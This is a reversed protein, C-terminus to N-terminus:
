NSEIPPLVKTTFVTKFFEFSPKKTRPRKPDNFDVGYIGFLKSSFYFM